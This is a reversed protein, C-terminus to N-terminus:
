LEYNKIIGYLTVKVTKNLLKELGDVKKERYFWDFIEMLLANKLVKIKTDIYKEGINEYDKSKSIVRHFVKGFDFKKESPNDNYVMMLEKLFSTFLQPEGEVAKTLTSILTQLNTEITKNQNVAEQININKFKQKSWLMLLERKSSFYNYFTGKAIGVKKTIGNISVNYYGKEKFLSIAENIITKKIEKRKQNYLSM